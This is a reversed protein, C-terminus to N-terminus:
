LKVQLHESLRSNLLPQLPVIKIIDSRQTKQTKRIHISQYFYKTHKKALIRYESLILTIMNYLVKTRVNTDPHYTYVNILYQSPVSQSPIQMNAFVMLGPNYLSWIPSDFPVERFMNMLINSDALQVNLQLGSITSHLYLMYLVEKLRMDETYQLDQSIRTVVSIIHTRIRDQNETQEKALEEIYTKDKNYDSLIKHIIQSQSNLFSQRGIEKCRDLRSPDLTISFDGSVAKHAYYDGADDVSLSDYDTGNIARNPDTILGVLQYRVTDKQTPSAFTLKGDYRTAMMYRMQYANDKFDGVVRVGSLSDLYPYHEMYVEFYDISDRIYILALEVPHHKPSAVIIKYIGPDLTISFNGRGLRYTKLQEPRAYNSVIFDAIEIDDKLCACKVWGKIGTHINQSYLSTTLILILFLILSVQKWYTYFCTEFSFMTRVKSDTVWLHRGLMLTLLKM